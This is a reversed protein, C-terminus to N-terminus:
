TFYHGKDLDELLTPGSPRWPLLARTLESTAPSDTSLGAGLWGFHAPADAPSISVAPVGLHRAIVEAVDRLPVGEEAVAHLVSGAPGEELALRFLTAADARHVAPWRQSGDGVYGAVGKARAAAVVQPIFGYDGEGHVTPPLRLVSTRVGRDALAEVWQATAQRDGLDGAQDANTRETAVRGPALGLLGAAIVFPRDSGELAGGLAEAAARDAAAAEAYGGAFAIDHKFALHVVGDAASAAERLVVLDDLSGEVVEAGAAVLAAASEPSRALGTVRHGAEILEPVLVSGIWGSAGTVLVRM